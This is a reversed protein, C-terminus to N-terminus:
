PQRRSAKDIAERVEDQAKKMAQELQAQTERNQREMQQQFRATEDAIRREIRESRERAEEAALRAAQERDENSEQTTSGTVFPALIAPVGDAGAFHGRAVDRHRLVLLVLLGAMLLLCLGSALGLSDLSLVSRTSRAVLRTPMGGIIALGLFSVVLMEREALLGLNVIQGGLAVPYFFCAMIAGAIGLLRAALGLASFGLEGELRQEAPPAPTKCPCGCHPCATARLSVMGFCDVCRILSAAPSHAPASPSPAPMAQVVMAAAAPPASQVPAHRIPPLGMAVAQSISLSQAAANTASSPDSTEALTARAAALAATTAPVVTLGQVRSAEIWEGNKEKKIEHHSFIKKADAAAKLQASTLPGIERGNARIYWNIPM